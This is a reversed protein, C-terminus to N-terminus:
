PIRRKVEDFFNLLMTVHVSGKEEGSAEPPALVVFRKGDPALDLNSTGTYFLQNDSWLRPKGPIFSAGDVAYDVVMIQNDATEYFLETGNKSWLAYLGGANSIQWRGANADPFPRVYIENSGSENSRYAIWRGDPSFRPQLDDAMSRLFLEPKGSKPRDPDTVDLPLTWIEFRSEPGKQYYALRRGDPSFSWPRSSNPSEFLGQPDGVGDSRMWFIGTGSGFVIHKGDPTWLPTYSVDRSTLRSTTERGLDYVHLDGSNGLYTLKRGDPSFQPFSYGGRVGMLPRTHGSSDLWALHWSQASKGPMYVLTGTRSFEFEGSGTVPNAAVDDLLPVALGRVELRAPDFKVGFMAGQRIYVLHGTPLYRGYYAGRVLITVKGTKLSIAEIDANDMGTASPSATFLVASGGPLVQPWRHTIEAPGLRSLPSQQGGAGSLSFLPFAAGMAAVINGDERWSGGPLIASVGAGLTVPAGGKVSIKKVQTRAFFGIWQGDPSFFPDAGNETGPLLMVTAQDLLRTALQQKGDPGRAPFVLRRGDPSIAATLNLGKMADPGLDVSLRILPHDAPRAARWWGISLAVATVAFLVAFTWPVLRRRQEAAAEVAPLGEELLMRVDGIAQWRQRPERRLCRELMPRFETPIASLDVQSKLLAALTDSVTPEAFLGRGTLMEYFVAGFAWIDTRRDATQGRAQEPSMYAATGLVAGPRTAGMTRTASTTPDMRADTSVHAVIALGFDLIKVKGEPTVKINAPKLDRHVIGREHAYELGDAIQRAYNLALEPSLGCPLTEGEVLEMVLAREEIGYIAAINQHNLSALVRAERAFRAMRDSDNAFAEPLIKIAVDRNLKTDTARWVVGMAGEGLKSRIRYHAISLDPSM